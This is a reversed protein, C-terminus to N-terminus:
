RPFERVARHAHTIRRVAVPRRFRFRKRDALVRKVRGRVGAAPEVPDVPREHRRQVRLPGPVLDVHVLRDRVLRDM